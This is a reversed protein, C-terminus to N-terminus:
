RKKSELSMTYNEGSSLSLSSESSKLKELGLSYHLCFLDIVSIFPHPKSLNNIGSHAM